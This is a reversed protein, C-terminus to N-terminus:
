SGDETERFRYGYGRITEILQGYRGLKERIRRVHTDITRAGSAGEDAGITKLLTERGLPRGKSRVLSLLIRFEAATLGAEKGDVFVQFRETDISVPGAKIVKADECSGGKRLVAKIRLVLERPSFPKVIYDDAGLELGIVRDMEEGKATLMVVPIRRTDPDAKLRRLVDNGEMNPLMLDLLIIDPLSRKALELAEPGDEAQIFAFGANVLNYRLLNLIDIEDDVALIKQKM